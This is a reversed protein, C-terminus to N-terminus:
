AQVTLYYDNETTVAINEKALTFEWIGEANKTMPQWNDAGTTNTLPGVDIKVKSVGSGTVGAGNDAVDATLDVDLPQENDIVKPSASFGQPGKVPATNDITYSNEATDFHGYNDTAKVSFPYSGDAYQTGDWGASTSFTGSGTGTVNEFNNDGQYFEATWGNNELIDFQLQITQPKIFKGEVPTVNSATLNEVVPANNDVIASDTITPTSYTLDITDDDKVALGTGTSASSILRHTGEFIGTDGGTETLTVSDSEQPSTLTVSIEELNYADTNQSNDIITINVNDGIDYFALDLPPTVTQVDPNTLSVTDGSTLTVSVLEAKMNYQETLDSKLNVTVYFRQNGSPIDTPTVPITWNEGDWSPSSTIDTDQTSQFGATTGDEAWAKISTIQADGLEDTAVNTVTIQSIEDRWTDNADADFAITDSGSEWQSSTSVDVYRVKWDPNTTTLSTAASPATGALVDDSQATFVDDADDDTVIDDDTGLEFGDGADDVALYTSEDLDIMSAGHGADITADDGTSVVGDQQSSYTGSDGLDILITDSASDYTGGDTADISDLSWDADFSDTSTYGTGDAPATGAVTTDGSDSYKNATLDGHEDLIIADNSSDWADGDSFDYTLVNEWDSDRVGDGTEATGATPATGAIVKEGSDFQNNDNADKFIADVNSDWADGSTDDYYSLYDPDSNWDASQGSEELTQGPSPATGALVTDAGSTYADDSDDDLAM